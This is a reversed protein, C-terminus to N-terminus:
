GPENMILIEYLSSQLMKKNEAVTMETTYFAYKLFSEAIRDLSAPFLQSSYESNDTILVVFSCRRYRDQWGKDAYLKDMGISENM